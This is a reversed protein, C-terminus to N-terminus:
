ESNINSNRHSKHQVSVQVSQVLLTPQMVTEVEWSCTIEQREVEGGVEPSWVVLSGFLADIFCGVAGGVAGGVLASLHRRM